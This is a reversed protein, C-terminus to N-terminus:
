KALLIAYYFLAYLNLLLLLGGGVTWVLRQQRPNPLYRRLFLRIGGVFLIALPGLLVFFYRGQPTYYLWNFQIYVLFVWAFYVGTAAIIALRIRSLSTLFPLRTALGWFSVIQTAFITVYVGDPFRYQMRVFQGWFSFWGGGLISAMYRWAPMGTRKTLIAFGPILEGFLQDAASRRLPDGFHITNYIFWWGITILVAIVPASVCALSRWLSQGPKRALIVGVAIAPILGVCTVKSGIAVATWLTLFLIRRNTFGRRIGSYLFVLAAASGLAALNENTAAGSLSLRMPILAAFAAVPIAIARCLRTQRALLYIAYVTGVGILVSLLRIAIVANDDGVLPSAVSYLFAASEHYIPPHFSTNYEMTYPPIGGRHAAMFRIVAMHSAEDPQFGLPTTPLIFAWITSVLFTTLLLWNLSVRNNM